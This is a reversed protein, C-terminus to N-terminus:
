RSVGVSTKVPLPVKVVHIVEPKRRRGTAALQELTIERLYGFIHDNLGNWLDHTLCKSQGERCNEEGGCLTADIPENVALIVDAISIEAAPRALRYGGCAGRTSQVLGSRRMPGFLQELYSLSIGRRASIEALSVPGDGGHIALDLVATVAFHGKTTLRM